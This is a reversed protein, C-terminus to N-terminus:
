LWDDLQGALKQRLLRRAHLMRTKVTGVPCGLIEAIERYGADHFYTLDVVARHEPSLKAMAASLIGQLQQHSLAQEPGPGPSERLEAKPDEVPDRHRARAKLATRYAIAFIWTSVKCRRDYRDAKRWVVMLTDNIAEEVLQPRRLINLIFRSLRPHYVRYLDEFAKLDGAAVRQVLRAEDVAGAPAAGTSAIDQGHRVLM